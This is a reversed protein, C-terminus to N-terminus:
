FYCFDSGLRMKELIYIRREMKNIKDDRLTEENEECNSSPGHIRKIHINLGKENKGVFKCEKCQFTETEKEDSEPPREFSLLKEEIVKLKDALKNIVEDKENIM